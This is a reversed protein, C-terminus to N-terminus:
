VIVVKEFDQQELFYMHAGCDITITDFHTKIMVSDSLTVDFCKEFEYSEKAEKLWRKPDGLEEGMAKLAQQSLNRIVIRM